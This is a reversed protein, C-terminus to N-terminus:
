SVSHCPPVAVKCEVRGSLRNSLGITEVTKGIIFAGSKLTYGNTAAINVEDTYNNIYSNVDLKNPDLTMGSTGSKQVRIVADLRLDISAPQFSSSDPRPYINLEGNQLALLIEGDSLLM